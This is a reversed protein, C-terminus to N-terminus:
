EQPGSGSEAYKRERKRHDTAARQLNRDNRNHIAVGQLYRERRRHDM